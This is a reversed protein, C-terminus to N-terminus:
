EEAPPRSRAMWPLPKALKNAEGTELAKLVDLVTRNYRLERELRKVTDPTVHNAGKGPGSSLFAGKQDFVAWLITRPHAKAGEQAKDAASGKVRQGNVQFMDAREFIIAIVNWDKRNFLGM